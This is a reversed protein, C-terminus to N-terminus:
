HKGRRPDAQKAARAAKVTEPLLENALGQTKSKLGGALVSSKGAMMADFGHKAVMTRADKKARGVETDTMGAREFFRTDTAGPQMVTVTVGSDELEKRIAEGFSMVFAKTAGYVAEYRSPSTSVVSGTILIRGHGRRVMDPLLCKALYITHVCNLTVMRLESEIDTELFPGGVSVGANLVLADVPRHGDVTAQYLTDMGDRTSLDTRLTQVIAGAAGADTELVQAARHLEADDASLLVDFRHKVCQRAIELGIESSAGTIVAFM